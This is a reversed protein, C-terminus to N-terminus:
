EIASIRGAYQSWMPAAKYAEVSGAPVKIAFNSTIFFFINGTGTLPIPNLFTIFALNNCDWFPYEGVSTISAPLTIQTLNTCGKFAGYGISTLGEALIVSGSAAPYAILETNNRVLAKGNEIVSLHGTGTVTFSVLSTCGSFPNIDYYIDVSAPLSLSTLNTCNWFANSL